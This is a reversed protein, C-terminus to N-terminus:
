LHLVVSLELPSVRPKPDCGPCPPRASGPGPGSALAPGPLLAGLDSAHHSTAPVTTADCCALPLLSPCSPPPAEARDQAAGCCAHDRAAAQAAAVGGLLSALGVALLWAVAIRRLRQGRPDARTM